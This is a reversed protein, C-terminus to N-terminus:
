RSSSKRNQSSYSSRRAQFRLQLDDFSWVSFDLLLSETAFRRLLLKAVILAILSASVIWHLAYNFNQLYDRQLWLSLVVAIMEQAIDFLEQGSDHCRSVNLRQVLFRCRLVDLQLRAIIFLERGSRGKALSHSWQQMSHAQIQPPYFAVVSDIQVKLNRFLFTLLCKYRDLM